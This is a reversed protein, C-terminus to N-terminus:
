RTTGDVRRRYGRPTIPELDALMVLDELSVFSIPPVDHVTSTRFTPVVAVRSICEQGLSHLNPRRRAEM